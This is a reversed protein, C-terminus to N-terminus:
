SVLETCDKVNADELKSFNMQKKDPLIQEM